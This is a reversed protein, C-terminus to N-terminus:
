GWRSRCRSRSGFDAGADIRARSQQQAACAMRCVFGTRNAGGPGVCGLGWGACDVAGALAGNVGARGCQSGIVRGVPIAPSAVEVRQAPLLALPMPPLLMTLIPMLLMDSLAATWIAHRVAAGRTFLSALLACLALLVARISVDLLFETM